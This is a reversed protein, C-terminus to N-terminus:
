AEVFASVPPSAVSSAGAHESFLSWLSDALSVVKSVELLSPIGHSTGRACRRSINHLATCSSGWRVRASANGLALCPPHRWFHTSGQRASAVLVCLWLSRTHPLCDRSHGFTWACRDGASVGGPLQLPVCRLSLYFRLRPFAAASPLFEMYHGGPRRASHEKDKQLNSM